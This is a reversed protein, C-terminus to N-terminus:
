DEKSAEENLLDILKDLLDEDEVPLFEDNGEENEVMEYILVEDDAFEETPEVPTLYIYWKGEFDLEALNYFDESGGEDYTLTVIEDNEEVFTKEKEKM